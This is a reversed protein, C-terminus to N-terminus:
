HLCQIFCNKISLSTQLLSVGIDYLKVFVSSVTQAAFVGKARGLVTCSDIEVNSGHEVRIFSSNTGSIAVNTSSINDM